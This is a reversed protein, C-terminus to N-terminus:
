GEGEEIDVEKIEGVYLFDDKRMRCVGTIVGKLYNVEM